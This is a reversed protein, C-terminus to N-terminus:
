NIPNAYDYDDGDSNFGIESISGFQNREFNFQRGPSPPAPSLGRNISWNSGNLSISASNNGNHIPSSPYEQMQDSIPISYTPSVLAPRNRPISDFPLSYEDEAPIRVTEGTRSIRRTSGFKGESSKTAKLKQKERMRATNSFASPPSFLNTGHISYRYNKPPLNERKQNEAVVPPSASKARLNYDHPLSPRVKQRRPSLDARTRKPIPPGRRSLVPSRENQDINENNTMEVDTPFKRYENSNGNHTRSQPPFKHNQIRLNELSQLEIADSLKNEITPDIVPLVTVKVIDPALASDSHKSKHSYRNVNGRGYANKKRRKLDIKDELGGKFRKLMKDDFVSDSLNEYDSEVLDEDTRTVPNVVKKIAPSSPLSCSRQRKLPTTEDVSKDQRVM